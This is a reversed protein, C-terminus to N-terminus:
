WQLQPAEGALQERNSNEYNGALHKPRHKHPDSRFQTDFLLPKLVLSSMRPVLWCSALPNITPTLPCGREVMSFSQIEQRRITENWCV